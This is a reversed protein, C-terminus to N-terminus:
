FHTSFPNKQRMKEREIECKEPDLYFHILGFSTFLRSNSYPLLFVSVNWQKEFFKLKYVIAIDCRLLRCIQRPGLLELEMEELAM